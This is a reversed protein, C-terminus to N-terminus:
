NTRTNVAIVVLPMRYIILFSALSISPHYLSTTTICCSRRLSRAM